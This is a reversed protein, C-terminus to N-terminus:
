YTDLSDTEVLDDGTEAVNNKFSALCLLITLRFVGASWVHGTVLKYGRGSALFYDM